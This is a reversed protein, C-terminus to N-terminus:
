QEEEPHCVAVRVRTCQDMAVQTATGEVASCTGELHAQDEQRCTSTTSSLPGCTAVGSILCYHLSHALRRPPIGRNYPCRQAKLSEEEPRDKYEQSKMAWRTFAAQKQASLWIYAAASLGERGRCSPCSYLQQM